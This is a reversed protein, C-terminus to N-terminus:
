GIAFTNRRQTLTSPSHTFLFLRVRVLNCRQTQSDIEPHPQDIGRFHVAFAARFFDHGVCNSALAVAHEDHGFNIRV